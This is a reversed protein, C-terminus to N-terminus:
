DNLFVTANKDFILEAVKDSEEPSIVDIVKNNKLTEWLQHEKSEIQTPEDALLYFHNKALDKNYTLSLNSILTFYHSVNTDLAHITKGFDIYKAGILAGNKGICDMEFPFYISPLNATSFKYHTHVKDRVKDILKTEIAYEEHSRKVEVVESFLHEDFLYGILGAFKIDDFVNENIIIPKSFQLLGNSYRSLYEFYSAQHFNDYKYILKDEGKDKNFEECKSSIQKILFDINVNSKLLRAATNKKKASFYYRFEDGNFLIVGIALTDSTAINTSIRVISYFNKM